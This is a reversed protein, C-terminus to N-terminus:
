TFRNSLLKWPGINKRASPWCSRVCMAFRTSTLQGLNHITHLNFYSPSSAHGQNGRWLNISTHLDMPAFTTGCLFKIITPEMSEMSRLKSLSISLLIMFYLRLQVQKNFVDFGGVLICLMDMHRMLYIQIAPRLPWLFQSRRVMNTTDM